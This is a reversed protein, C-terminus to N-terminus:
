TRASSARFVERFGFYTMADKVQSLARRLPTMRADTVYEFSLVLREEGAAVPSVGHQLRDGNFVVVSGPSTSVAVERAREPDGRHLRCRLRSSSRDVVGLLVTYRDGRYHSADYHFGIRDGPEDYVYLACAHPDDDPCLRLDARTLSRLFSLMAASRYLEVINPAHERLRFYSVSGSKKYLPVRARVAFRRARQADAVLKAVVTRPLLDPLHIFEDQAVFAARAARADFDWVFDAAASVEHIPRPEMSHGRRSSAPATPEAPPAHNMVIRADM